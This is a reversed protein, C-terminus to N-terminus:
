SRKVCEIEIFRNVMDLNKVSIIDYNNGGFVARMKPVIGAVYRLRLTLPQEDRVRNADYAELGTEYVVECWRNVAHNGWTKVPEGYSNNAETASQITVKKRM